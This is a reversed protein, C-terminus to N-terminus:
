RRSRALRLIVRLEESRLLHAFSLYVAVGAAAVIVVVLSLELTTSLALRDQILQPLTAITVGMM